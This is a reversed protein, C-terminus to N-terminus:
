YCHVISEPSLGTEWFFEYVEGKFMHCPYLFSMSFAPMMTLCMYDQVIGINTSGLFDFGPSGGLFFSHLNCPELHVGIVLTYEFAIPISVTM